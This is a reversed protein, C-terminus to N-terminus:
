ARGRCAGQAIYHDIMRETFAQNDERVLPRLRDREAAAAARSAPDRALRAALGFYLFASSLALPQEPEAEHHRALAMWDDVKCGQSAKRRLYWYAADYSPDDLWLGSGPDTTGTPRLDHRVRIRLGPLGAMIIKALREMIEFRRHCDDFLTFDFRTRGCEFAFLAKPEYKHVYATMADYMLVDPHAFADDVRLDLRVSCQEARFKPFLDLYHYTKTKINDAPGGILDELRVQPVKPVIDDEVCNGTSLYRDVLRGAWERNTESILPALDSRAMHARAGQDGNPDLRAALHYYLYAIGKAQPQSDEREHRRGLRMWLGIDCSEAACRRLGWYAEDFNPHDLWLAQDPMQVPPEGHRYPSVRLGQHQRSVATVAAELIQTRRQCDAPLAVLLSVPDEAVIAAAAAQPQHQALFALVAKTATMGGEPGATADFELRVLCDALQHAPQLHFHHHVAAPLPDVQSPDFGDDSQLRLVAFAM